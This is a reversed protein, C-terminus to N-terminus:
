YQIQGLAKQVDTKSSLLQYLANYYNIQSTRLDTEATIVELYTKIGSRYQLNIVNYVEEALQVNEKLALYTALNAKYNAIANAYESNVQKELRIIDWNTRELQWEASSINAKRKGGQFIPFSLTLGAYSNPFNNSYLKGFNNNLYNLNYAGNLSVTPLYAWKYYKLNAEQLRKQTQLQRYEIRSGLNINQATDLGIEREMQLSDYVINLPQTIPYGMLYKLYEQKSQLLAMNSKRTARTNNLTITARKYDTKDAVGANYQATADKLSRELRVINEDAVKIQQITALVDYFAKTVSAAIDIKNASTNQSAQLRVDGRSRFALLVDRNFLNQTLAFQGLSTNNVGLQVPNGGIISTQVQFNHLLSYNFNVQPYWDALKSKITNETIREDILSQQIIPQHKIAYDVVNQLTAQQLLSDAAPKNSAQQATALLPLLGALLCIRWICRSPNSQKPQRTMLQKIGPAFSFM